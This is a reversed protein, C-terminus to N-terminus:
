DHMYVMPTPHKWRVRILWAREACSTVLVCHDLLLLMNILFGPGYCWGSAISSLM